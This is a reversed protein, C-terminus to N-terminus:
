KREGRPTNIVTKDDNRTSKVPLQPTKVDKAPNPASMVIGNNSSM